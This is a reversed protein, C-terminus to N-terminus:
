GSRRREFLRAAAALNERVFEEPEAAILEHMRELVADAGPLDFVICGAANRVDWDEDDAALAIMRERCSDLLEADDFSLIGFLSIAELRVLDEEDTSEAVSLLFPVLAPTDGDAPVLVRLGARREDASLAPFAALLEQVPRSVQIM